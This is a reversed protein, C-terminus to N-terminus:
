EPKADLEEQLQRYHDAEEETWDGFLIEQLVTSAPSADTPCKASFLCVGARDYLYVADFVDMAELKALNGAIDDVIKKHHAPDVARPTTGAERMREYRIQCSILSIEPKVAMLALSVAYGRARLLNATASPVDSTRLTGEVILNYGEQSLADVLAEVMKGSWEAAHVPADVGYRQQIERFRPHSKRYEDGNIVVVNNDLRHKFINHLTSKGAGSQGGLLYAVPEEVPFVLPSALLVAITEQLRARFDKESFSDLATM